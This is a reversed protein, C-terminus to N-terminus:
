CSSVYGLKGVRVEGSRLFFFFFSPNAIKTMIRPSRKQKKNEM